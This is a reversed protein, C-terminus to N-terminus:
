SADSGHRFKLALVRQQLDGAAGDKGSRSELIAVRKLHRSIQDKAEKWAIDHAIERDELRALRAELDSLDPKAGFLTGFLGM